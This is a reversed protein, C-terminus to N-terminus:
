AGERKGEEVAKGARVLPGHDCQVGLVTFTGCEPCVDAVPVEPGLTGRSQTRMADTRTPPMYVLALGTM